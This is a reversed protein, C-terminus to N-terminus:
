LTQSYLVHSANRSRGSYTVARGKASPERELGLILGLFCAIVCCFACDLLVCLAFTTWCFVRRAGHVFVPLRCYRGQDTRVTTILSDRLSVAVYRIRAWRQKDRSKAASSQTVEPQATAANGVPKFTTDPRAVTVLGVVLLMCILWPVSLAMKFQCVKLMPWPWDTCNTCGAAVETASFRM